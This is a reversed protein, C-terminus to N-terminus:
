SWNLVLALTLVLPPSLAAGKTLLEFGGVNFHAIGERNAAIQIFLRFGNAGLEDNLDIRLPRSLLALLLGAESAGPECALDGRDVTDFHRERARGVIRRVSKDGVLVSGEAATAFGDGQCVNLVAICEPDLTGQLIPNKGGGGDSQLRLL